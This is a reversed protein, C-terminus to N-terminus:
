CPGSRVKDLSKGIRGLTAHIEKQREDIEKKREEVVKAVNALDHESATGSEIREKIDRLSALLSDLSESVGVTQKGKGAALSSASIASLTSNSRSHRSSFNTLKQLRDLEKLPVDM